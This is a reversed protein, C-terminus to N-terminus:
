RRERHTSAMMDGMGLIRKAMRDPHFAELSDPKEGQFHVQYAQRNGRSHFPRRRWPRRWGDQVHHRRRLRRARRVVQVVNVVDQGTMADVVMLIQDPSVAEKIREAEVM